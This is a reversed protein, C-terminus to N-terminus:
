GMTVVVDAEKASADFPIVAGEAPQGNVTM